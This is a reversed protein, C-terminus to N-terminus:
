CRHVGAKDHHSSCDHETEPIQPPTASREFSDKVVLNALTTAETGMCMITTPPSYESSNTGVPSASM